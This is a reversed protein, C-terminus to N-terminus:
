VERKAYEEILEDLKSLIDGDTLKATNFCYYSPTEGTADSERTPYDYGGNSSKLCLYICDDRYWQFDHDKYTFNVDWGFLLPTNPIKYYEEVSIQSANLLFRNRNTADLFIGESSPYIAHHNYIFRIWSKDLYEMIYDLLGTHTLLHLANKPFDSSSSGNAWQADLPQGLLMHHVPMCLDASLLYYMWTSPKNNFTRYNRYLNYDFNEKTFRSFLIKLLQANRYEERMVNDSDGDKEFFKQVSTWKADFDSWDVEGKKNHFLFRIAGHFFAYNEAQIIRDYWEPDNNIKVAKDIEENWRLALASSNDEEKEKSALSAIVNHSDLSDLYAIARRVAEDNRIELWNNWDTGSILNYVVRMWHALSEQERPGDVFYKCLAFFIIRERQKIGTIEGKQEETYRPIFEFEDGWWKAGPISGQFAACRDLVLQLREFFSAPITGHYFLYPKFGTYEKSAETNFYEFSANKIDSSLTLIYKGDDDKATFLENWFFRNIFAFYIEDITYDDESRNKWFLDSWDTDLKIPIGHQHDLLDRWQQRVEVSNRNDREQNRLFGILEAKFNEFPTLQKGRANMKVYLDDSLGFDKLPQLYFGIAGTTTLRVWYRKFDEPSAKAFMMRLGDFDDAGDSSGIGTGNIMRLMSAITPDQDWASYYWTSNKIYSVVDGDAHCDFHKFHEPNCLDQIFDRSSIRTEYSFKSLVRFADDFDGTFLAIYWHMLWLTTLRQQGDLPHLENDEITGYVFDLILSNGDLAQKLSSLFRKRLNEKGLRGQAYDRQIIPIVIRSESLLEWFTVQKTEM